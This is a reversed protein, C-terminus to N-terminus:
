DTYLRGLRNPADSLEMLVASASEATDCVIVHHEANGRLVERARRTAGDIRHPSLASILVPFDRLAPVGTRIIFSQMVRCYRVSVVLFADTAYM